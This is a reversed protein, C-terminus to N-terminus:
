DQIALGGQTPPFLKEYLFQLVQESSLLLEVVKRRDVVTFEDITVPANPDVNKSGKSPPAHGSAKNKAPGSNGQTLRRSYELAQDKRGKIDQKVREICQLFFAELESPEGFGM